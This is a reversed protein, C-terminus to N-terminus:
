RGGEEIIEGLATALRALDDDGIQCHTVFRLTGRSTAACFIDRELLREAVEQALLGTGDIHCYV